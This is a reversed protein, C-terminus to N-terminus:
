SGVRAALLQQLGEPSLAQQLALVEAGRVGVTEARSSSEVRLSRTALPLARHYIASRIGALLEENLEAFPGGVVIANPNYFSVLTALVRGISESAERVARRAFPNGEAALRTVDRSTRAEAVGQARLRRALAEGGAVAELCGMNGCSCLLDEGGPVRIHGIDGAAGQAGRHLAGGSVIGCGIGTSIKVYLIHEYDERRAWYEGLAALNADNDVLTPVSYRDAFFEPIAFGDWGPMIPPRVVTGTSHEVPGPVGIGIARVDSPRKGASSLLDQFAEDLSGLVAAPGDAIRLDYSASALPVGALDSASVRCHSSGLDAGLIVGAAGNLRLEGPPRGGKSAGAEEVVLGTAILEEIRTAVTGRSLGTLRTLYARTCRPRRAIAHLLASLDAHASPLAESRSRGSPSTM